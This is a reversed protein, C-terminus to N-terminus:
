PRDRRLLAEVWSPGGGALLGAVACVAAALVLGAAGTYGSDAELLRAVVDAWM